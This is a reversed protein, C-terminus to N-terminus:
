YRYHDPKFPGTTPIGLYEAQDDSLKSLKIGLAQLHSTAVEEDLKKPLMHVGIAYKGPNLWLDLQALVQNSFSCSM